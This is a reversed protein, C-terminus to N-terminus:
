AALIGFAHRLIKIAPRSATLFSPSRNLLQIEASLSSYLVPDIGFRRM